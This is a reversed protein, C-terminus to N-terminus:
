SLQRVSKRVTDRPYDAQADRDPQPLGSAMAPRSLRTTTRLRRDTVIMMRVRTQTNM